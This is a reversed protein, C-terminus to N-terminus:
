WYFKSVSQSKGSLEKLLLSNTTAIREALTKAMLRSFSHNLKLFDDLEQVNDLYTLKVCSRAIADATRPSKNFLTIEGFFDNKGLMALTITKLGDNILIEVKGSLIIFMRQDITGRKIIQDNESYKLIRGM